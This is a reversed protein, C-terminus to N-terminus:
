PHQQGAMDRLRQWDRPTDKRDIITRGRSDTMRYRGPEIRERKGDHYLVEIARGRIEVTARAPGPTQGNRGPADDARGDGKGHGDSNGGGSGGSGGGGGNGHASAHGVVPLRAALPLGVAGSLLLFFARRTVM